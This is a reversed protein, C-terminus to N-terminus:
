TKWVGAAKVATQGTQKWVGGVKCSAAGSKWVGGTKVPLASGFRMYGDDDVRTNGPMVMCVRAALNEDTSYPYARGYQNM